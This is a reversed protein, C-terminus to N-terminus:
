HETLKAAPVTRVEGAFDLRFALTDTVRAIQEWMEDHDAADGSVLDLAHTMVGNDLVDGTRAYPTYRTVGPVACIERWGTIEVLRCPATPAPNNYQWYVRDPAIRVPPVTDGLAIRGALRVMDIGCSRRSLENVHGGLRGNVEIIKPGDPTLKIETHTVGSTVGVARLAATTLACVEQRAGDDLAAPWFQGTERFPPALPFKGTVAAHTIAGFVVMSEVSVYDGYPHCDQGSLLEELVFATGAPAGALLATLIKRGHEPDDIRHTDRSGGGWAPKLVAPLGVAVVAEDWGGEDLVLRSRTTDVGAERLSERQAFKDTLRLITQEDHYRLGLSHALASTVPLMVESFTVIGDPQRDALACVNEDQDLGLEVVEGLREMVPILRRAEPSSSVAFILSATEKLGDYAELPHVAGKDHIIALRKM